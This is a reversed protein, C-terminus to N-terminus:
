VENLQNLNQTIDTISHSLKKRNMLIYIDAKNELTNYIPNLDQKFINCFSIWMGNSSSTNEAYYSEIYPVKNYLYKLESKSIITLNLLNEDAIVLKPKIISKETLRSKLRILTRLSVKHNHAIDTLNPKRYDKNCNDLLDLIYPRLIFSNPSPPSVCLSVASKSTLSPNFLSKCDKYYISELFLKSNSISKKEKVYFLKPNVTKSFSIGHSLSFSPFLTYTINRFPSFSENLDYSSFSFYEHFGFYSYDILCGLYIKVTKLNQVILTVKKESINLDQAIMSYTLDPNKELCSIVFKEITNFGVVQSKRSTYSKFYSIIENLKMNKSYLFDHFFKIEVWFNARNVFQWFPSNHFTEEIFFFNSFAGVLKEKMLSSFKPFSDRFLSITRQQSHKQLGLRFNNPEISGMLLANLFESTSCKQSPYNLTDSNNKTDNKFNMLINTVEIYKYGM